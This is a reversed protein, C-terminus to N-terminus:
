ELLPLDCWCSLTQAPNVASTPMAPPIDNEPGFGQAEFGATKAAWEASPGTLFPASGRSGPTSVPDSPSLQGEFASASRM